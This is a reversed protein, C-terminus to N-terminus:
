LNKRLKYGFGRVTEIVSPSGSTDLKKRLNLIFVEVTNPLVDADFDWVHKILDEKSIVEGSRIILYELLAFERKTLQMLKGHKLVIKASTDIVLSGSTLKKPRLTHPRRVLAEIRALLEALEFPKVLYDDAGNKLGTVKDDLQGRATLMLIPMKYGKNRLEACISLGDKNGPLMRDLIILDYDETEAYALGTEYDAVLDVAYGELRLGERTAEGLRKNDEVLLLRM